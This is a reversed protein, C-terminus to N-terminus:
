TNRTPKNRTDDTVGEDGVALDVDPEMDPRIARVRQQATHTAEHAAAHARESPASTATLGSSGTAAPTVLGRQVGPEGITFTDPEMDPGIARGTSARTPSERLRHVGSEDIAIGDGDLDGAAIRGGKIVTEGPPLGNLEAAGDGDLDGGPGTYSGDLSTSQRPGRAGAGGGSAGQAARGPNPKGVSAGSGKLAAGEGMWEDGGAMEKEGM